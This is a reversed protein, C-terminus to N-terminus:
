YEDALMITLLRMTVAPDSPDPSHQQLSRDYYDIKFFLRAGGVTVAGFDHEDHPDNASDFAAFNAVAHRIEHRLDLSLAVVGATLIVRGDEVNQRLADNLTRIRTKVGSALM